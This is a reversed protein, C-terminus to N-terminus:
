DEFTKITVGEMLKDRNAKSEIEDAKWEEFMREAEAKYEIKLDDRLTGYRATADYGEERSKNGNIMQTIFDIPTLENEM